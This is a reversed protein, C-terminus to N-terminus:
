VNDLMGPISSLIVEWDYITKSWDFARQAMIKGKEPDNLLALCAKAFDGPRDAILLTEGHKAGLGECGISTSVVPLGKSWAEIIKIRTGGGIQLPVVLASSNSLYPDIDEVFGHLNVGPINKLYDLKGAQSSIDGVIEISAGPSQKYIIPWINQCFWEIGQVNPYYFLAGIFVLRNGINNRAPIEEPYTYGNPLHSINKKSLIYKKEQDNAIAV